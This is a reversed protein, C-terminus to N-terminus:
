ISESKQCRRASEDMDTANEQPRPGLSNEAAGNPRPGTVM